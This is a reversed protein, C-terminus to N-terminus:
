APLPAGYGYKKRNLAFAAISFVFSIAEAATTAAFIGDVGLVAPLALVSVVEWLFTRGGSLAASLTGNGLATFFSSALINVGAFLFNPSYLLFARRTLALLGEDYGVFLAAAPRALALSLATLAAGGIAMFGLSRRLVGRLEARNGAGHHFSVIPAAGVTYGLYISIFLFGAYQLVGFADVGDEGALALLRYNYLVSVVSLSIDTVLESAGNTCAKLFARPTIRPRTFRLRGRRPRIFFFLPLFGGIAQSAATAWAAGALGWRFVGVFLADFLMNGVGAALTVALGLKPREATVLFSQFLTQLTVAPLAAMLIRGYTVCNELLEGRAGLLGALPRIFAVGAGGLAASGVATALTLATFTENARRDDGEGMTTAVLASGGTGFLFGLSSLIMVVPFVLNVASFATKGVLNSVFWGDVMGYLSSFVMMGISPLVFRLLRGTTFHDSLSIAM